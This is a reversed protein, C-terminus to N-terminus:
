SNLCCCREDIVGHIFKGDIIKLMWYSTVACSPWVFLWWLLSWSSWCCSAMCMTSRTPGSPHSSSTCKLLSLVLPCCGELWLSSLQNWSGSNIFCLLDAYLEFMGVYKLVFHLYILLLVCFYINKFSISFWQMQLGKGTSHQVHYMFAPILIWNSKQSQLSHFRATLIVAVSTERETSRSPADISYRLQLSSLWKSM